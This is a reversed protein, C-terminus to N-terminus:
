ASMGLLKFVELVDEVLLSEGFPRDIIEGVVAERGIEVILELVNCVVLFSM